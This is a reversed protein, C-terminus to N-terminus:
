ISATAPSVVMAWAVAYADTTSANAPRSAGSRACHSRRRASSSSRKALWVPSRPASDLSTAKRGVAESHPLIRPSKRFRVASRHPLRNPRPSTLGPPQRKSRSSARNDISASRKSAARASTSRAESHSHSEADTRARKSPVPITSGLWAAADKGASTHAPKLELTGALQDLLLQGRSDLTVDAAGQWRRGRVGQGHRHDLTPAPLHAMHRECVGRTTKPAVLDDVGRKVVPDAECQRQAALGDRIKRDAVLAEIKGIAAEIKSGAEEGGMNTRSVMVWRRLRPRSVM